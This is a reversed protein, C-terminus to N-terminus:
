NLHMLDKSNTKFNLSIILSNPNRDSNMTKFLKTLDRSFIRLMVMDKLM